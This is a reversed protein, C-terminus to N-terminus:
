RALVRVQYPKMAVRFSRQVQVRDSSLRDMWDGALPAALSVMSNAPTPNFSILVLATQGEAKRLCTFVGDTARASAYDAAGERLAPLQKRLGYVQALFDVSSEGQGGYVGPDEDGQYLMPVGDIFACLALLARMRALGYAKAPRQKQFTWSVTDHNSIWRMKLAGPPLTQQQDHLFQQFARAWEAPPAQRELLDAQLFYFQADYTLDAVRNFINAGTYEEPLVVVERQARLYGERIARNMGLGAALSSLSPRNNVDLNWNLPGGAGCDVRAGVAGFEKAGWEAARRMYDQWGPHHNDFALQSWMVQNKGDPTRAIWEPHEKALPTFDPPGHPVLDFMLRIGHTACERSLVRLEDATGLLHDVQFHDFPSYLNWKRGDGHEWTPLFWLLGINMKRLTPVYRQMAKFGGYRLFGLEPPGGPHGCYMTMGRLGALGNEPARLGIARYAEQVGRLAADRSGHALWFFQRGLTVTEGPKLRIIVNQAHRIEVGAGMRRVSVPSFEEECHFWAGLGRQTGPDWLVVLPDETRPRVADDEQMAAVPNDGVPLSGPFIVGQNTGVSLPPTRYHATQFLQERSSRNQVTLQRSFTAQKFPLEFGVRYEFDGDSARMSLITAGGREITLCGELPPADPDPTRLASALGLVVPGDIGGDYAGNSVKVLVTNTQGRRLLRAPIRYFRPTEWHHPTEAGTRGVREGNLWTVDFDDVAGLVLAMEADPWNAPMTFARRYWFDGTREHLRDDGAGRRSPIPTREWKVADFRGQLFAASEIEKPPAPTYLWEGTLSLAQGDAIAQRIRAADLKSARPPAVTAHPLSGTVLDEGTRRDVLGMWNETRPDFRLSLHENELVLPPEAAVGAFATAVCLMFLARKMTKM